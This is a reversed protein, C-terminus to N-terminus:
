VEVRVLRRIIINGFLISIACGVLLARGIPSQIMPLFYSPAMFLLLAAVGLPLLTIVWASARTQATLTSLENAIGVRVRITEEISELVTALNGGVTNQILIATVALELDENRTRRVLNTLAQELTAGMSMERVVRAFEDAMPHAGSRAVADLAQPLNLGARLSNALTTLTESLQDNIVSRMWGRRQRLYLSPGLWGVAAMVVAPIVEGFRWAGLAGLTLAVALQIGRFESPRLKIGAAVLKDSLSQGSHARRAAAREVERRSAPKKAPGAGQSTDAPQGRRHRVARPSFRDAPQGALTAWLAAFVGLGTLVALVLILTLSV